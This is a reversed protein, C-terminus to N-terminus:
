ATVRGALWAGLRDGPMPPSLLFGQMEACGRDRLFELQEATEVGEAIAKLHLQQAMAIIASVIAADDTDSCIDRIFARDIKLSDIAFRKLYALSSYGTGFDDIAMRVDQQKIRQISQEARGVDDMLASETIELELGGPPMGHTALAEAVAAPLDDRRFQHTSINVAIALDPLGAERWAQAQRCAEGLVWRGVQVIMGTDELTPIFDAPPVMGREPHDWRLLAEVGTVRGSRLDLQPQYHLVFEDRELARRLKSELDLREMAHANMDATYFCFGSRGDAKARYMATDANRLLIDAHEGDQPYLSIGISFSLFFEYGELGVPNHMAAMIKDLIPLVDDNRAIDELLIAFEDGGMRAVTDGQRLCKELRSAVARLLRDGAGHGLTDNIQKFRDLDLFLVALQRGHRAARAMARTLRNSLLLRNPLDTLPDHHALHDLRQQTQMRESIDKGTSVYHTIEGSLPDRVPSITKEEYYIDGNRRHNIFIDRFVEGRAITDWMRTYFDADHRGSKVVSSMQGVVEDRSFGTTQVFAPNVYEIRGARDTIIVSDATQDLASALKALAVEAAKRASIDRVVAILLVESDLEASSISWEMPFVSGDKHRGTGECSGSMFEPVEGCGRAQACRGDPTCHRWEKTLTSVPRGLVENASYGFIQVARRNFSEIIGHRDFTVIGDGVNDLLAQIQAESRRRASRLREQETVDELVMLLAARSLNGLAPHLHADLGTALPALTAEFWCEPGDTPSCVGMHRLTRGTVLVERTRQILVDDDFLDMLRRGVLADHGVGFLRDVFRNASLVELEPSLVLLGAPVSCIVNEAYQKLAVISRRDTHFYAELALGMDFFVIKLLARIGARRAEPKLTSTEWVEPLLEALYKCYAGLYWQPGLGIRQHTLGVRLRDSIYEWGYEGSTLQEFYDMQKHRLRARLEPTSLLERLEPFRLLHDYFVEIFRQRAMHLHPHLARLAREDAPGFELFARRAGLEAEDLGLETVVSNMLEEISIM